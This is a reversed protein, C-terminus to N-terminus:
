SHLQLHSKRGLFDDMRLGILLLTPVTHLKCSPYKKDFCCQQASVWLMIRVCDFEYFILYVPQTLLLKVEVHFSIISDCKLDVTIGRDPKALTSPNTSNRHLNEM